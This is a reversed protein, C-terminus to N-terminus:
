VVTPSDWFFEGDGDMKQILLESIPPWGGTQRIWQIYVHGGAVVPQPSMYSGTPDFITVGGNPGWSLSGEADIGQIHIISYDSAWTVVVGQLTPDLCLRPSINETGTISLHIGNISWLHEALTNLKYAYVQWLGSRTDVTTIIANNDLDVVMNMHYFAIWSSNPQNTIQVGGAPWQPIGEPNLYQLHVNYDGDSLWAIYAGGDSTSQIQPQIGTGIWLPDEPSTPWQTFSISLITIIFIIIRM